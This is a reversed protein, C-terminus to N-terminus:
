KQKMPFHEGNYVILEKILIKVSDSPFDRLKRNLTFIHNTYYYYEYRPVELDDFLYAKEFFERDNSQIHQIYGLSSLMKLLNQKQSAHNFEISFLSNYELIETNYHAAKDQVIILNLKHVPSLNKKIIHTSEEECINFDDKLGLLQLIKLTANPGSGHYGCLTYLWFENEKDDRLIFTYRKKEGDETVVYPTDEQYRFVEFEKINGILPLITEIYKVTKDPEGNYFRYIM